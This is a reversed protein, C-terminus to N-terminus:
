GVRLEAVYITFSSCGCNAKMCFGTGKATHDKHEHQCGHCIGEAPVKPHTVKEAAAAEVVVKTAYYMWCNCSEESFDGTKFMEVNTQCADAHMGYGLAEKLLARLAILELDKEAETM